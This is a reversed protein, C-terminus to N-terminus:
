QNKV